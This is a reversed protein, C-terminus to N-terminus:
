PCVIWEKNPNLTFGESIVVSAFNVGIDGIFSAAARIVNGLFCIKKISSAEISPGIPKACM